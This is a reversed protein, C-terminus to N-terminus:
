YRKKSPLCRDFEIKQLHFFSLLSLNRLQSFFYYPQAALWTMDSRAIAWDQLILYLASYGGLPTWAFGMKEIGAACYMVGVQLLILYRPWAMCELDVKLWTRDRLWSDVSLCAGCGSFMLLFLMNRMLMDIGRDSGSLILAHQSWALLLVLCASRTMVGFLVALCAVVMLWYLAVGSAESAGFVQFFWPEKGRTVVDSLGGAEMPVFLPVILDLRLITLLDSLLVLGIAVRFLALSLPHERVACLKVWSQIM